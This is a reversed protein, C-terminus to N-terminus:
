DVLDQLMRAHIETVAGFTEVIRGLQAVAEVKDEDTMAPEDSLEFDPEFEVTFDDDESDAFEDFIEATPGNYIESEGLCVGPPCDCLPADEGMIASVLDIVADPAGAEALADGISQGEELEIVKM